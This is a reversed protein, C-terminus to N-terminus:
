KILLRQLHTCKIKLFVKINHKMKSPSGQLPYM